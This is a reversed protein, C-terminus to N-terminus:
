AAGPPNARRAVAAAAKDKAIHKIHDNGLLGALQQLQRQNLGLSSLLSRRQIESVRIVQSRVGSPLKVNAAWIREVGEYCLFDTDDTIIAYAAHAKAWYAAERDSDDFSFFVRCGAEAFADGLMQLCGNPPLWLGDPLPKAPDRDAALAQNLKRLTAAEVARRRYWTTLKDDPIACDLFVVLDYGAAKFARVMNRVRTQQQHFDYLLGKKTPRLFSRLAGPADFVVTRQKGTTNPPLPISKYLERQECYSRLLHM